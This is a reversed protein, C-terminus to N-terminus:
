DVLAWASICLAARDLFTKNQMRSKFSFCILRLNMIFYMLNQSAFLAFNVLKFFFLLVTCRGWKQFLTFAVHDCTRKNSFGKMWRSYAAQTIQTVCLSSELSFFWWAESGTCHMPLHFYCHCEFYLIKTKFYEERRCRANSVQFIKLSIRNAKCCSTTLPCLRNLCMLFDRPM